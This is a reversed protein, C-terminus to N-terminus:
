QLLSSANSSSLEKASQESSNRAALCLLQENSWSYISQSRAEADVSGFLCTACIAAACVLVVFCVVEIKTARSIPRETTQDHREM